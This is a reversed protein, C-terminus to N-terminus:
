IVVRKEQLQDTSKLTLDILASSFSFTWSTLTMRNLSSSWFIIVNSSVSETEYREITLLINALNRLIEPNFANSFKNRRTERDRNRKPFFPSFKLVQAVAAGGYFHWIDFFGM